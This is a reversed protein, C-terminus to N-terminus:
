QGRRFKSLSEELHVRLGALYDSLPLDIIEVGRRRWSNREVMSPNLQIAWWARDRRRDSWLKHLLARLNWDRLSYGLFLFHCNRMRGLLKVPVLNDLDMRALYEIYHDETIVYSDDNEDDAAARDVFGHLKLIVPRRDPDLAINTTPDEIEVLGGDAQRTCFTGSRPGEAVYVILDFEEGRASFASEMLDDYNTTVILPPKEGTGAARLVGPLEALFDHLPTTPFDADFVEHLADYLPGSGGRVAYIYQSIAILDDKPDAPYNFQQALHIALESGSPPFRGLWEDVQRPNVSSFNVGAGLVPTVRGRIFGDIVSDYHASLELPDM